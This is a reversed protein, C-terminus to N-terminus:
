CDNILHWDICEIDSAEGIKSRSDSNVSAILIRSHLLECSRHVIGDGTTGPKARGVAVKFEIWYPVRQSAVWAKLFDDGGQRWLFTRGSWGDEITAPFGGGTM